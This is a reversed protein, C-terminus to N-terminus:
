KYIIYKFAKQIRNKNEKDKEIIKICEFILVRFDIINNSRCRDLYLQAIKIMPENNLNNEVWSFDEMQDRYHNLTYGIKRADKEGINEYGMQRAIMLVMDKQDNEDLITFNSSYGRSADAFYYNVFSVENFDSSFRM